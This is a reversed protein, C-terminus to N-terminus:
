ADTTPRDARGFLMSQRTIWTVFATAAGVTAAFQWKKPRELLHGDEDKQVGFDCIGRLVVWQRGRKNCANAFGGAEMEFAKADGSFGQMYADLTTTEDKVEGSLIVGSTYKPRNEASSFIEQWDDPLEIGLEGARALGASYQDHWGRYEPYSAQFDESVPRPMRFHEAEPVEGHDTRTGPSVYTVQEAGVVYGLKTKSPRGAAMGILAVLRSPHTDVVDLIEPGSMTNTQKNLCVLTYSLARDAVNSHLEGKFYHHGSQPMGLSLEDLPRGLVVQIASLEVKKPCIILIDADTGISAVERSLGDLYLAMLAAVDRAGIFPASKVIARLQDGAAPTCLLARAYFDRLLLARVDAKPQAAVLRELYRLATVDERGTM